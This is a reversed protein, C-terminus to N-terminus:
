TLIECFKTAKESYIFKICVTGLEFGTALFLKVNLLLFLLLVCTFTFSKRDVPNSNKYVMVGTTKIAIAILSKQVEFVHNVFLNQFDQLATALDSFRPPCTTSPPSM